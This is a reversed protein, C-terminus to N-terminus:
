ISANKLLELTFLSRDDRAIDAPGALDKLEKVLEKKTIWVLKSGREYAEVSEPNEPGWQLKATCVISQFCKMTSNDCSDFSGIPEIDEITCGIEEKVERMLGKEWGEGENVGGGPLPYMRGLEERYRISAIDDDENYLLVYISPRNSYNARDGKLRFSFYEADLHNTLHPYSIRM